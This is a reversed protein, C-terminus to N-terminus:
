KDRRFLLWYSIVVLILAALFLGDIIIWDRITLVLPKNFSKYLVFSGFFLEICGYLLKVGAWIPRHTRIDDIAVLINLVGILLVFIGMILMINAVAGIFGDMNNRTATELFLM